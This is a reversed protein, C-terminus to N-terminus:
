RCGTPGVRRGTTTSTTSLVWTNLKTSFGDTPLVSRDGELNGHTVPSGETPLFGNLGASTGTLNGVQGNYFDAITFADGGEEDFDGGACGDFISNVMTLNGNLSGASGGANTFTEADDIDLCQGGFGTVIFNWANAGTGRRWTIGDGGDSAGIMTFNALMPASRPEEDFGNEFNDAEIGRDPGGEEQVILVYQAKGRWGFGWDFSDDEAGIIVANKIQATGGFFEIGDDTSRFVNIFELTTGAGVGFLSLGQIERDPLIERGSYRIQVYRLIGSSDNDDNGGYQIETLAEDPLECPDVGPDCGNILANGAIVLGAVDGAAPTSGSDIDAESTFIIPAEKNGVAFIDANRQVALVADPSGAVTAGAEVTLRNTTTDDGIKVTGDYLWVVNNAWVLDDTYTGAPVQCIGAELASGGGAQCISETDATTTPVENVYPCSVSRADVGQDNALFEVSGGAFTGAFDGEPEVDLTIRNCSHFTLTADEDIIQRNPLASSDPVFNGGASTALRVTYVNQGPIPNFTAAFWASGDTPQGGASSEDNTYFAFFGINGNRTGAVPVFSLQAGVNTVGNGIYIEPFSSDPTLAGASLSATLLAAGATCRLVNRSDLTIM